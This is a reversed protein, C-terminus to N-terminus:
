RLDRRMVLASSEADAGLGSIHGSIHGYYNQRKGVQKFGMKLYLKKAAENNEEVELFLAAVRLAYLQRLAEDMLAQGIGARRASSSVAITLIEAEDLVWRILVFGLVSKGDSKADSKHAVLGIVHEDALLNQIEGDSWGRAFALAHLSAMAHTDSSKATLIVPPEKKRTFFDIM